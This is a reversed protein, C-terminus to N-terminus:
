RCESRCKTKSVEELHQIRSWLCNMRQSDIQGKKALIGLELTLLKLPQCEALLKLPRYNEVDDLLEEVPYESGWLQPVCIRAEEFVTDFNVPSDKSASILYSALHGRSLGGLALM